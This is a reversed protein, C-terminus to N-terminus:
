PDRPIRPSFNLYWQKVVIVSVMFFLTKGEFWLFNNQKYAMMDSNWELQCLFMIVRYITMNVFDKSHPSYALLM